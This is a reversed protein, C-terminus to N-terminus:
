KLCISNKQIQDATCSNEVNFPDQVSFDLKGQDKSM